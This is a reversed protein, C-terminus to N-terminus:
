TTFAVLMSLYKHRESLRGENYKFLGVQTM